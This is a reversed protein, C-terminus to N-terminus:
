EGAEVAEVPETAWDLSYIGREVFSHFSSHKWDSVRKVWGHKVPNWHIYDVHHMYDKDDRILHEWFRRQWIGREGRKRRSESSQEGEGPVLGRSFGAKILAWRTSYDSDGWPLTWICHLHDPLVVVADIAFPHDAKVKRLVQRLGDINETLLRNDHREALNVTFFWTAGSIKPRRYDTM